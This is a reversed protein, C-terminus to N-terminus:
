LISIAILKYSLYEQIGHTSGERGFGSEKIGGFPICAQSILGTNVGVMGCELEEAVRFARALDKTYFYGALGFETDNGLELLEEETEFKMLGAVPGFTEDKHMLLGGKTPVDGLITPAYFNPGHEPLAHGGLLLKAGHSLADQVHLDVKALSRAHILPGHTTSASLPSGLTFAAVKKVLLATFEEYIDKHLYIRNCCVCTQGSLRFKCAILGEVASALDADPFVAFIANGGLEFSCKKLTGSAQSMLLKGVPSSGTFSVKRVLPNQTMEKGVDKTNVDTTIINVVGKPFGAKEILYAMALASFPTEPPAKVVATCGAALAPALKRTIMANPFNWCALISCVGVPQKIVINRLGPAAAPITDGITRVAEASFWDVFSAGYTIEGRADALTKGNEITIIKALDEQNAIMLDNLKRLLDSRSKASTVAWSKRAADAAKIAVRVEEATLDPAHGIIEDTAPDRVAFTSESEPRSSAVWEGDVYNTSRLLDPNSLNLKSALDGFSTKLSISPSLSMARLLSSRSPFTPRSLITTSTFLRALM